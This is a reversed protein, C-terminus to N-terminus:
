EIFLKNNRARIKPANHVPLSKKDQDNKMAKKKRLLESQAVLGQGSQNGLYIFCVCFFHFVELFHTKRGNETNKKKKFGM